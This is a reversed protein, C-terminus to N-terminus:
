GAILLLILDVPRSEENFQFALLLGSFFVVIGEKANATGLVTSVESTRLDFNSTPPGHSERYCWIAHDM